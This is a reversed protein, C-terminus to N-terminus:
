TPRSASARGADASMDEIVARGGSRLVRHMENLASLPREFNKFAVQCVILDFQDSAFPMANADGHHFVVNVGAQAGLEDALTVFTRSIDLGSVEFRGLKALEVALYGPGQPSKSSRPATRLTRSWRLQTGVTPRLINRPAADNPIAVPRSGEMERILKRRKHEV